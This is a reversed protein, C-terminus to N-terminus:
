SRGPHFPLDGVYPFRPPGIAVAAGTSPDIAILQNTAVDAGFLVGTVPQVALGLVSRFGKLGVGSIPEATGTGEDIGVLFGTFAAFDSATTGVLGLGAIDCEDPVGNGDCDPSGGDAIDAADPVGNHDCDLTVASAAPTLMVAILFVIPQVHRRGFHSM